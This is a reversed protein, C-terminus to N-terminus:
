AQPSQEQNMLSSITDMPFLAQFAARSATAPAGGQGAGAVPPMAGPGQVKPSMGPIGGRTAPAPPLKRLMNRADSRFPSGPATQRPNLNTPPTTFDPMPVDFYTGKRQPPASSEDFGVYNLGATVLYNHLGRALKFKEEETVGRRLLQAMLQPDKTAEEIIGRIFLTPTKQFINRMYKSGASAAILSGPGGSSVAGGIRSGIVRLALETVADGGQMVEDMLQNNKLAAEVREMPQILRRLNKGETISMVNQSRMISFLSPQGPSMPEFLIKQFAAPSFGQEGGAKIFAYDFLSAKLGAVADAGGREALKVIGAFNKVPNKSNLADAIAMTPNEFQVVRAFAEQDRVTKLAASNASEVGKFAAEAKIADTLDTTIQLRDLMTKNENVFKQLMRENVRGTVPDISKAAALRLARAQADRISSVGQDALDALPKLAQAQQSKAGFKKVAADYQTRMLGVADEIDQMRRAALDNSAGFARQVLIEPAYPAVGRVPAKGVEGAFSRTFVDNLARSFSRAADYNPLNLKELDTLVSDALKSYFGANAVEGRASANRAFDLLDSRINILDEIDTRAFISERKQTKPGAPRTVYEAPVVGTDLFEQTRKGAAYNRITDTTIGLRGMIQRVESPLANFREPTMSTAIDLSARGTTEPIVNRPVLETVGQTTKRRLTDRFADQWLQKEYSRADRLADETTQQVLRGIEQRAAPTDGTIRSVRQAADIEAARLRGELLNDFMQQRLVAAQRLATPSGVTNLNQILLEYTRITDLGQKRIEAAYRPNSRSLTTELVGLTPSGTKQAATPGAGTPLNAELRRILAPIDEGTEELISYLRNAARADRSDKSMSRMVTGLIEKTTSTATLTLRGPSFMGGVVEAMLRAAPSDPAYEVAAGGGIGAGVGSLTEGLLYRVPSSRASEGIRQIFGAVRTGQGAPIGFAIPAMGITLGFTKGGERYPLLDRNPVAPFMEDIRDGLLWDATIAGGIAGVVPAFPAFPGLAPALMAGGKFGIGMGVATPASKLLGITTGIGTERLAGSEAINSSTDLQGGSVTGSPAAAPAAGRLTPDVAQNGGQTLPDALPGLPVGPAEQNTQTAM